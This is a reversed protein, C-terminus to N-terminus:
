TLQENIIEIIDSAIIYQFADCSLESLIRRLNQRTLEIGRLNKFFQNLFDTELADTEYICNNIKGNQEFIKLRIIGWTKEIKIYDNEYQGMIWDDSSFQSVLKLYQNGDIEPPVELCHALYEERFSLEIQKKVAPIAINHNYQSINAVRAKVSSIGKTRLKYDDPTLCEQLDSPNSFVLLTGHHLMVNNFNSFANGSVKKGDVLIDNRGSLQACIQLRSLAKILVNFNKSVSYLETPIIFSYNLNGLDHYVAGGGSLRRAIKIKNAKVYNMNCERNPNQNRGIVITNDNQWLYLGIIRRGNTLEKDVYDVLCKEYALNEWPNTGTGNVIFSYDM